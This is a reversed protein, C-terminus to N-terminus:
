QNLIIHQNKSFKLSQNSDFQFEFDFTIFLDFSVSFLFLFLLFSPFIYLPAGPFWEPGAWSKVQPGALLIGFRYGAEREGESVTSGV